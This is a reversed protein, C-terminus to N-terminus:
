RAWNPASQGVAEINIRAEPLVSSPKSQKAITGNALPNTGVLVPKPVLVSAARKIVVM